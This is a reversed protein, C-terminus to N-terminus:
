EKEGFNLGPTCEFGQKKLLGGISNEGFLLDIREEKSSKSRALSRLSSYDLLKSLIHEMNQEFDARRIVKQIVQKSFRVQGIMVKTSSSNGHIDFFHAFGHKHVSRSKAIEIFNHFDAWAEEAISNGQAADQM